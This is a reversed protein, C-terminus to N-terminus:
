GAHFVELFIHTQAMLYLLFIHWRLGKRQPHARVTRVFEVNFLRHRTIREESLYEDFVPKLLTQSATVIDMQFGSKRRQLIHTPLVSRAYQRLAYKKRGWPMLEDRPLASAHHVLDWDLFPVRTELGVRMSMRDEQWLLDNVLKNKLEFDAMSQAADTGPSFRGELWDFCDPPNADLLREGYV